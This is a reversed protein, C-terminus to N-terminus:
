VVDSPSACQVSWMIAKALQNLRYKAGWRNFPNPLEPVCVQGSPHTIMTNDYMRGDGCVLPWCINNLVVLM